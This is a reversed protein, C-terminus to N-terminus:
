VVYLYAQDVFESESELLFHGYIKACVRNKTGTGSFYHREVGKSRGLKTTGESQHFPFVGRIVSYCGPIKGLAHVM